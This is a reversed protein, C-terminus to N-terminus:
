RFDFYLEGGRGEGEILYQNSGCIGEIQHPLRNRCPGFVAAGARDIKLAKEPFQQCFITTINLEIFGYGAVVQRAILCIGHLYFQQPRAGQLIGAIKLADAYIHTCTLDMLHYFCARCVFFHGFIEQIFPM